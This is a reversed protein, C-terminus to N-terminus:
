LPRFPARNKGRWAAIRELEEPADAAYQRRTEPTSEEDISAFPTASLPVRWHQWRSFYSPLGIWKESLGSKLQEALRESGPAGKSFLPVAVCERSKEDVTVILFYHPGQVARDGGPGTEANTESGGISRLVSTDLHVVLGPKIEGEAVAPM